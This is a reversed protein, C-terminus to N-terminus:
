ARAAVASRTLVGDVFARVLPTDDAQRWALALELSAALGTLPRFTVGALRLRSLSAAVIAIGVGAAVLALLSLKSDTEFVVPGDAGHAALIRGMEQSWGPELTTRLACRPEGALRAPAIRTRRALPHRAPLAVAIGERRIVQCALGEVDAPLAVFAVDIQEARLARVLAPSNMETMQPSAAPRGRRFGTLAGPLPGLAAASSFGVRLLGVEGRASRQTHSVADALARFLDRSRDRLAAGAPTLKVSRSTRDFLRVGLETELERIQQSLPPQSVHLRQAARGFHLDDAVAM